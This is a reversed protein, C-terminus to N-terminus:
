NTTLLSSFALADVLPESDLPVNGPGKNLVAM